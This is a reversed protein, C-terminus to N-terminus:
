IDCQRYVAMISKLEKLVLAQEDKDLDRMSEPLEDSEISRIYSNVQKCGDQCLADVIDQLAPKLM